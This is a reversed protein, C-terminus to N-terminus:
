RIKLQIGINYSSNGSWSLSRSGTNGSPSPSLDYIAIRADTVNRAVRQTMGSPGSSVSPNGGFFGGFAALLIGTAATSMSPASISATSTNQTVSGVDTLENLGGRYALIAGSSYATNSTPFSYSSPESAGAVKTLIAHGITATKGSAVLTWGSPASVDNNNYRFVVAVLFDGEVVGTPKSISVSLGGPNGAYNSSAVFEPLAM